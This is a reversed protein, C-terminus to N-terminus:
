EFLEGIGLEFGDVDFGADASMLQDNGTRVSPAEGPCYVTVTRRIPNIVWVHPVNAALYKAVKERVEKASDDPSVVEIALDPIGDFFSRPMRGGPLRENRVFHVDPALVTDPKRSIRFGCEMGVAGLAHREIFTGSRLLARAAIYSHEGGVPMHAVVEGCILEVKGSGPPDELKYFEEATYFRSAAQTTM